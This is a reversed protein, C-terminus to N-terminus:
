KLYGCIFLWQSAEDAYTGDQECWGNGDFFYQNNNSLVQLFNRLEETVYCYGNNNCADVYEAELFRKWNEIIRLGDSTYRNTAVASYSTGGEDELHIIGQVRAGDEEQFYHFNNMLDAVLPKSSGDNLRIYWIGDNENLYCKTSDLVTHGDAAMEPSNYLYQVTTNAPKALNNNLIYEGNPDLTYVGDVLSYRRKYYYNGSQFFNDGLISKNFFSTNHNTDYEESFRLEDDTTYKVYDTIYNGNEDTQYSGDSNRKYYLDSAYVIERYVYSQEADGLYTIKFPISVPFLSSDKVEARIAFKQVNGLQRETFSTTFAFNKTYGNEYTKGGIDVKTEGFATNTSGSYYTYAIPNVNNDFMNVTSEFKYVGAVRPTFEYYVMESANKVICTYFFVSSTDISTLNDIKYAKGYLNAGTGGTTKGKAYLNLTVEPNSSNVITANPDYAYPITGDIYVYYEGDPAEITATGDELLQSKFIGNKGQLVVNTNENGPYPNLKYLVKVKFQVINTLDSSSSNSSESPKSSTPYDIVDGCSAISLILILIPFLYLLKKM